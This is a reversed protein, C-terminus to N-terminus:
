EASPRVEAVLRKAVPHDPEIRLTGALVRYAEDNRGASRLEMGLVIRPLTEEPALETAKSLEEIAQRSRREARAVLGRFFPAEWRDPALMEVRAACHGLRRLDGLAHAAIALDIWATVDEPHLRTVEVFVSRAESTRGLQALCRAELRLLDRDPTESSLQLRRVSELAGALDGGALQARFLEEALIRDEPLLLQAKRFREVATDPDSQMMAIQGLLQHIAAHNEFYRAKPELLARATDLNGMAVECEAAALLYSLKTSDIEFARHYNEAAVEDNSWREYIVGRYYCAEDCNEDLAIAATFAQMAPELRHTELYIRGLLVQYDAQDPSKAIASKVDKLAREFQGAHFAQTAQDYGVRSSVLNMRANAEARKEKGKATPGNCGAALLSLSLLALATPRRM